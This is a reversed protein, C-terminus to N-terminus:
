GQTHAQQEPFSALLIVTHLRLPACPWPLKKRLAAPLPATAVLMTLPARHPLWRQAQCLCFVGLYSHVRCTYLIFLLIHLSARQVHALEACTRYAAVAWMPMMHTQNRLTSVHAGWFSTSPWERTLANRECQPAFLMYSTHCEGHGCM